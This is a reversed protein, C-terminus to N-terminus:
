ERPLRYEIVLNTGVGKPPSDIVLDGAVMAARM